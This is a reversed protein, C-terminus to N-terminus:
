SEVPLNCTRLKSVDANSMAESDCSLPKNLFITAAAELTQDSIETKLKGPGRAATAWRSTGDYRPFPGSSEYGYPTTLALIDTYWEEKFSVGPAAPGRM